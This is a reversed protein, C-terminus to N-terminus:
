AQVHANSEEIGFKNLGRFVNAKMRKRTTILNECCRVDWPTAMQADLRPM